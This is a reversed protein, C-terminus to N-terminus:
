ASADASEPQAGEGSQNQNQLKEGEANNSSAEVKAAQTKWANTGTATGRLITTASVDEMEVDSLAGDLRGALVDKRHPDMPPNASHRPQDDLGEEDEDADEDEDEGEGEDEDGDGEVEEEDVISPLDSLESEDASDGDLLQKPPALTTSVPSPGTSPATTPNTGTAAGATDSHSTGVASGQTKGDISGNAGPLIIRVGSPANTSLNETQKAGTTNSSKESPRSLPLVSEYARKMIERMSVLRAKPKTPAESIPPPAPAPSANRPNDNAGDINMLSNLSMPNARPPPPISPQPAPALAPQLTPITQPNSRSPAELMPSVQRFITAYTDVCLKDIPTSVMLNANIKRLDSVEKLVTVLINDQNEPSAIWTDVKNGKASFDDNMMAKDLTDGVGEAVNGLRRHMRLFANCVVPWVQEHHYFENPKKRVRRTLIQIAEVDETQELLETLFIAYRMMFVWHRGPRENEPKWVSLALTKVSYLKEDLLYSKTMKAAANDRGGNEYMVKAASFVIRHHWKAKDAHRVVKFIELIWSLWEKEQGVFVSATCPAPLKNEDFQSQRKLMDGITEAADDPPLVGSTVLKHLVNVVKYIPELTPESRDRDKREPIQEVAALFHDIAKEVLALAEDDRKEDRALVFQKWVCKGLMYETMWSRPRFDRSRTFCVQAFRWAQRSRMAKFSKKTYIGSSGGPLGSFYRESFSRLSFPVMSFPPRASSYMRMGFDFYLEALKARTQDSADAQRMAGAVAMAYAHISARQLQSIDERASNLKESSWLVQEELLADNAQGLHFWTEWREGSYELDQGFLTIADELDEEDGPKGAARSSRYRALAMQGRLYFWGKSAVVAEDPTLPVTSVELVGQLGRYLEIPNLPGKMYANLIKKNRMTALTSKVPGLSVNVKEVTRGLESKILDKIPVKRAKEFVFDILELATVRDLYDSDCGHDQKVLPQSFCHLEFLDWLIQSQDDDCNVGGASIELLEQRMFKLYMSDSAKCLRRVGLTYHVHRLYEWRTEFPTLFSDPLQSMAKGLLKYWLMQTRIQMEHFKISAPHFVENPYARFPNTMAPGKHLVQSHDDWLAMVYLLMWVDAVVKLSDRLNDVNLCDMATPHLDALKLIKQLLDDIDRLRALLTTQREDLTKKSYAESKIDKVILEISVLDILIVKPPFDISEYAERLRQWLSLRLSFTANDLFSALVEASSKRTEAQPVELRDAANDISGSKKVPAILVPELREILDVPDQQGKQFISYFFDMTELKSLERDAAALSLEPIATNNYLFVVETRSRSIKRLDDICALVHERDADGYARVHFASAWLHRYCIQSDTGLCPAMLVSFLERALRCWQDLRAKHVGKVQLGSTSTFSTMRTYIDLHLEFMNQALIALDVFTTAEQGTESNITKSCDFAGLDSPLQALARSILVETQSILVDGVKDILQLCVRKLGPTWAHEEYSSTGNSVIGVCRGCSPDVLCRIWLAAVDPLTMWSRVTLAAFAPAGETLHSTPPSIAASASSELYASLGENRTELAEENTNCTDNLIATKSKDWTQMASFLDRMPLALAYSSSELEGEQTVLTRLAKPDGFAEIGLNESIHGLIEFLFNDAQVNEFLESSLITSGGTEIETTGSDPLISERARIRKSRARGGDATEPLEATETSRKRLPISAHVPSGPATAELEPGPPEEKTESSLAASNVMIADSEGIQPIQYAQSETAAASDSAFIAQDTRPEPTATDVKPDVHGPEPIEVALAAGPKAVANGTEEAVFQQLIAKGIAEWSCDEATILTKEAVNDQKEAEPTAPPTNPLFPYLALHKKLFDPTTAADGVLPLPQVLSLEDNIDKQLKILDDGTMTVEISPMGLVEDTGEELDDELAAELCYRAMRKTGLTRSVKATRRWLDLDLEDKDLAEAFDILASQAETHIHSPVDPVDNQQEIFTRLKDLHFQGRNKYSLHLIQPLTSPGNDPAAQTAQVETVIPLAAGLDQQRQFVQWRAYESQSEPYKFIDSQFLTDYAEQAEKVYGSGQSHFKLATQYEKLADEIQIEKTDDIEDDPEDDSEINLAKFSASLALRIPIAASLQQSARRSECDRTLPEVRPEGSVVSKVAIQCSREIGMREAHFIAVEAVLFLSEDTQDFHMISSYSTKIGSAPITGWPHNSEQANADRIVQQLVNMARDALRIPIFLYDHMFGAVVNCPVKAEALKRSIVAMMGVADLSSQVKLTIMRSPMAAQHTHEPADLDLFFAEANDEDVVTRRSTPPHFHENSNKASTTASKQEDKMHTTGDPGCLGYASAIAMDMIVTLGEPEQFTMIAQDLLGEHNAFAIPNGRKGFTNSWPASLFIYSNPHMVPQLTSLLTDLDTEGPATQGRGESLRSEKIDDRFKSGDKDTGKLSM